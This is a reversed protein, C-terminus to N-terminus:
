YDNYDSDSDSVPYWIPEPIYTGKIKAIEIDDYIVERCTPCSPINGELAQQMIWPQICKKHFVHKCPLTVMNKPTGNNLCITCELGYQSNNKDFKGFKTNMVVKPRNLRNMKRHERGTEYDECIQSCCKGVSHITYNVCVVLPLCCLLIGFVILFEVGGKKIRFKEDDDDDDDNTSNTSNTDIYEGEGSGIYEGEGSSSGDVDFLDTENTDLTAITENPDLSGITENTDHVAITENTENTDLVAITENTTKTQIPYGNAIPITLCLAILTNQLTMM